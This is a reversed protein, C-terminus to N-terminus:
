WGVNGDGLILEFLSSAAFNTLAETGANEVIVQQFTADGTVNSRLLIGSTGTGNIRVNEFLVDSIPNAGDMEIGAFTAGEILLDRIVIGSIPGQFARIKLAGHDIRFMTGGARYLSNREISTTGEFPRANFEQAILIGPYTVVDFCLNDEIKNDSGGYIAFCNARWPVQM